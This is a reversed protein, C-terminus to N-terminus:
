RSMERPRGNSQPIRASGRGCYNDFRSVRTHLPLIRRLKRTTAGSRDSSGQAVRRTKVLVICVWFGDLRSHFVQFWDLVVTRYWQPQHKCPHQVKGQVCLKEAQKCLACCESVLPPKVVGTLRCMSNVIKSERNVIRGAATVATAPGIVFLATATVLSM